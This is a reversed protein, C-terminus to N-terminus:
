SDANIKGSISLAQFVPHLLCSLISFVASGNSIIPWWIICYDMTLIAVVDYLVTARGSILHATIGTLVNCLTKFDSTVDAPPVPRGLRSDACHRESDRKHGVFRNRRNGVSPNTLPILVRSHHTQSWSQSCLYHARVYMCAHMCASVCVRMCAHLCVHVRTFESVRMCGSTHVCACVCVRACMCLCVCLCVCWIQMQVHCYSATFSLITM